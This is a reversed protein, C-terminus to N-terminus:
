SLSGWLATARCNEGHILQKQATKGSSSSRLGSFCPLFCPDTLGPHSFWQLFCPDTLGPHSFCQLFCPDTLGPYEAAGTKGSSSSRLARKGRRHATKSRNEGDILQKQATPTAFTSYIVRSPLAPTAFTGYIVTNEASIYWKGPLM